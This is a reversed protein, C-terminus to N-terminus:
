RALAAVSEQIRAALQDFECDYRLRLTRPLRVGSAELRRVDAHAQMMEEWAAVLQVEQEALGRRAQAVADSFAEVSEADLCRQRLQAARRFIRCVDRCAASHRHCASVLKKVSPRM